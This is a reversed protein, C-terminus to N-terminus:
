SVKRSPPPTWGQAIHMGKALLLTALRDEAARADKRVRARIRPDRLDELVPPTEEAWVEADRVTQSKTKESRTKKAPAQSKVEARPKGASRWANFRKDITPVETETFDYRAGSGVAEFTSYESRLFARLIRPTTGIRKAVETTDM